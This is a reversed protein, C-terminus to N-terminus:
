QDNITGRAAVLPPLYRLQSLGSITYDPANVGKPVEEEAPRARRMWVATLGAQRAGEIDAQLCDGVHIANESKVGLEILAQQFIASHPKRVGVQDSSVVVDFYELIGKDRLEKLFSAGGHARNTIAGIRIGRERLWNLTDIADEYLRCGLFSTGANSLEWLTAVQSDSLELGEPEFVSRVIGLYDPSQFEGADASVESASWRSHIEHSLRDISDPILIGQSELFKEYRVTIERHILAETPYTVEPFHWLTDGFDFFVAKISSIRSSPFGLKRIQLFRLIVNAHMLIGIALMTWVLADISFHGVILAIAIWFIRADRGSTFYAFFGEFKKKPYNIQTSSRYKESLTTLLLSGGLLLSVIPWTWSNFDELRAFGIGIGIFAVYEVFRDSFTDWFDGWPTQINLRRAIEGDVGAFISSLQLFLAGM